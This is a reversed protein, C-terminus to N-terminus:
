VRVSFLSFILTFVIMWNSFSNSSFSNYPPLSKDNVPSQKYTEPSRSTNTPHYVHSYYRQIPKHSTISPQPTQHAYQHHLHQQHQIPLQTDVVKTIKGPQDNCRDTYCCTLDIYTQPHYRMQECQDHSAWGRHWKIIGNQRDDDTCQSFHNSGPSTYSCVSRYSFCACGVKSCLEGETTVYQTIESQYYSYGLVTNLTQSKTEEHDYKMYCTISPKFGQQASVQLVILLLFFVALMKRIKLTHAHLGCIQYLSKDLMLM